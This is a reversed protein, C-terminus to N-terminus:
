LRKNERARQGRLPAAKRRRPANSIWSRDDACSRNGKGLNCEGCLTRLNDLITMGGLSFPLIHDVHLVADQHRSRGCLRCRGMDRELVQYRLALPIARKGRLGQRSPRYLARVREASNWKWAFSDDFRPLCAFQFGKNGQLHGKILAVALFQSMFRSATTDIFDRKVTSYTGLNIELNDTVPIGCRALIDALLRGKTQRIAKSSDSSKGRGESFRIRQSLGIIGHADKSRTLNISFLLGAAGSSRAFAFLRYHNRTNLYLQASLDVQDGGITLVYDHSEKLLEWPENNYQLAPITSRKADVTLEGLTILPHYPPANQLLGAFVRVESAVTM